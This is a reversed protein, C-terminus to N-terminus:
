KDPDYDYMGGDRAEHLFKISDSGDTYPRNKQREAIRALAEGMTRPKDNLLDAETLTTLRYRQERHAELHEILEAGTGELVLTQSM